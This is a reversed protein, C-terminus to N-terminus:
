TEHARLHTYSVSKCAYHVVPARGLARTRVSEPAEDRAGPADVPTPRPVAARRPNM